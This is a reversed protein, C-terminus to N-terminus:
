IVPFGIGFYPLWGDGYQQTKDNTKLSVGKFAFGTHLVTNSLRSLTAPNLRNVKASDSFAVGSGGMLTNFAYEKESIDGIGFYSYPSNTQSFSLFCLYVLVLTFSSKIM